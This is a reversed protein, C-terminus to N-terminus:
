MKKFCFLGCDYEGLEETILDITLEKNPVIIRYNSIYAFSVLEMETLVNIISKPEFVRHANFYVEDHNAIPVALYFFGGRKVKSQISMLAKEWAYPDISDGYRGLGFHEIAHLSSISGISNDQIENLSTADTQVFKLNPIEIPFPRIDLLTVSRGASLLQAIFGDVRSGIDFHMEPRRENIIKSFYLDMLFYHQDTVAAIEDDQYVPMMNYRKIVFRSERLLGNYKSVDNM